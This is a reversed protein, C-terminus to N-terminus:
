AMKKSVLSVHASILIFVTYLRTAQRTCNLCVKSHYEKKKASADESKMISSPDVSMWDFKVPSEGLFFEEPTAFEAFSCFQITLPLLLM